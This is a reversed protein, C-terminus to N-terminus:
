LRRSSTISRLNILANKLNPTVQVYKEDCSIRSSQLNSEWAYSLAEYHGCSADQTPVLNLSCKVPDDDIGPQLTLTRFHSSDLYPLRQTANMSTHHTTCYKRLYTAKGTPGQLPLRPLEVGALSCHRTYICRDWFWLRRYFMGFFVSLM